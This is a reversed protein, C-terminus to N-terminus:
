GEVGDFEDSNFSDLGDSVNHSHGVRVCKLPWKTFASRPEFAIKLDGLGRNYILDDRRSKYFSFFKGYVGYTTSQILAYRASQNLAQVCWELAM